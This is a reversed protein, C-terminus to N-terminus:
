WPRETAQDQPGEALFLSPLFRSLFTFEDYCHQLLSYGMVDPFLREIDQLPLGSDALDMGLFFHSRLVMGWRTDRALHILRSGIVEGAATLHPAHGAGARACVIASLSGGQRAGRLAAADFFESPERFQISLKEAPLATFREEIRHTAGVACGAAGGTWQSHIHDLPHWWVYERTTPRSGFWWEFMGGKCHHMDTRVAVHLAGGGLREYGTELALPTPTLLRHIESFEM